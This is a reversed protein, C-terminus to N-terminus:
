RIGSSLRLLTLFHRQRRKQSLEIAQRRPLRHENDELIYMPCVRGRELQKVIVNSRSGRSGTSSSMVARGSNMGGQGPWACIVVTESVRRFRRLPAARM